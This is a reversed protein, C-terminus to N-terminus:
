TAEEDSQERQQSIQKKEAACRCRWTWPNRACVAFTSGTTGILFSSLLPVLVPPVELGLTDWFKHGKVYTGEPVLWPTWMNESIKPPRKLYGKMRICWLTSCAPWLTEFSQTRSAQPKIIRGWRILFNVALGKWDKWVKSSVSIKM